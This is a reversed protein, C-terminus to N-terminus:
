LALAQALSVHVYKACLTRASPDIGAELAYIERLHM